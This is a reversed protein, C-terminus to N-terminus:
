SVSLEDSIHSPTGQQYWSHMIPKGNYLVSIELFQSNYNGSICGSGYMHMVLDQDDGQGLPDRKSVHILNLGLM